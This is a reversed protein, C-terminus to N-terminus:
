CLTHAHAHAHQMHMHMSMDMEMHWTCTVHTHGFACHMCASQRRPIAYSLTDLRCQSWRPFVDTSAKPVARRRGLRRGQRHQLAHKTYSPVSSARMGCRHRAAAGDSGDGGGQLPSSGRGAAAGSGDDVTGIVFVNTLIQTWMCLV